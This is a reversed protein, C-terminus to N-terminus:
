SDEKRLLDISSFRWFSILICVVGTIGGSMVPMWSEIQSFPLYINRLAIAGSSPFCLVPCYLAILLLAFCLLFAAIPRILIQLTMQLLNMTIFAVVPKLVATFVVQGPDVVNMKLVKEAVTRTMSLSLHQGTLICWGVVCILIILYYTISGAIIWVIKSLLWNRRRKSRIIIQQGNSTLDGLFYSIHLFLCFIMLLIWSVPVQIKENTGTWSSIAQEGRFIYLLCDGMSGSVNLRCLAQYYQALPIGVVLVTGWYSLKFLGCRIDRYLLKSFTM